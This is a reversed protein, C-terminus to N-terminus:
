RAGTIATSKALGLLSVTRGSHTVSVRVWSFGPVPQGGVVKQVTTRSIADARAPPAIGQNLQLLVREAERTATRTDAFHTASEQRWRVAVAFISLLIGLIAMAFIMDPILFGVARRQM